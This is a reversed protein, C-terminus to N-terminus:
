SVQVSSAVYADIKAAWHALIRAKKSSIQARYPQMPTCVGFFQNWFRRGHETEPVSSVAVDVPQFEESRMVQTYLLHLYSPDRDQAVDDRVIVATTDCCVFELQGHLADDFSLGSAIVQPTRTKLLAIVDREPGGRVRTAARILRERDGEYTLYIVDMLVVSFEGVDIGTALPPGGAHLFAKTETDLWSDNM